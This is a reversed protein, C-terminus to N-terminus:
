VPNEKDDKRLRAILVDKKGKSSLARDECEQRLDVVDLEDYNDEPEDGDEEDEEEEDEDEDEGEAERIAERVDDDDMRKLVKVDLENEAIYAKLAKRDMDDFDDEDGEEEEEEEEEVEGGQAELIAAILKPKSKSTIRGPIDEVELEEAVGRLDASSLEKLEDETYDEEEEAAEDDAEEDPEDEAEEDELDDLASLPLVKSIDPRYDGVADAGERLRLLAEKGEIKALNAGKMPLKFSVLLDKLRRAWMPSIDDETLDLPAYYFISEYQVARGKKDKLKVRKGDEVGATINWIVQVQDKGSNNSVTQELKTAKGVFLGVPAREVDPISGADGKAKIVKAM